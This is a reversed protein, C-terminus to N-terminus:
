PLMKHGCLRCYVADRTHGMAACVPCATGATSSRKINGMEVTVIGTPVAIISYGLIMVLSALIQGTITQPAIDGYGVTTLTVIAWYISRPISTFGSQPTEIMFMTTGILIVLTVVGGLFVTIKRRSAKLAQLISDGERLHHGLKFIRFVRLLRIVRIVLFYQTGAMLLSLFTPVIAVFDVIGLFSVAYKASKELCALRLIYEALFLATFAWEIARLMRGHEMNVLEVSELMVAAVSIVIALLLIVDFAKGRFTDAEFIIEYLTRQWVKPGSKESQLMMDLGGMASSYWPVGAPSDRALVVPDVCRGPGIPNLLTVWLIRKIVSGYAEHFVHRM